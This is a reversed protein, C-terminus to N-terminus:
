PTAYVNVELRARSGRLGLVETGGRLYEREIREGPELTTDELPHGVRKIVRLEVPRRTENIIQVTSDLGASVQQPQFRRAAVTVKMTRLEDVMRNHVDPGRDQGGPPDRDKIQVSSSYGCGAFAILALGATLASSRRM